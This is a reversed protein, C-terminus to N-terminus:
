MAHTVTVSGPITSGRERGRTPRLSSPPPSSSAPPILLPSASSPSLSPIARPGRRGKLCHPCPKGVHGAEWRVSEIFTHPLEKFTTQNPFAANMKEPGLVVTETAVPIYLKSVRVFELLREFAIPVHVLPYVADGYFGTRLSLDRVHFRVHHVCRPRATASPPRTAVKLFGTVAPIPVRRLFAVIPAVPIVMAVPPCSLTPIRYFFVVVLPPCPFITM